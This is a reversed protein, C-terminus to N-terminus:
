PMGSSGRSPGCPLRVAGEQAGWQAHKERWLGPRPPVAVSISDTYPRFACALAVVGCM